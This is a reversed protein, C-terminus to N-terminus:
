VSDQLGLVVAIKHVGEGVITAEQARRGQLDHVHLETLLLAVDEAAADEFLQRVQGFQHDAVVVLLALQPLELVVEGPVGEALM